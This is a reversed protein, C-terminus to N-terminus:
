ITVGVNVNNVNLVAEANKYYLKDLEDSSLGKISNILEILQKPTSSMIFMPWDSGFMIQDPITDFFYRFRQDLEEKRAKNQFTSIELFVNERQKAVEVNMKYFDAGGHGLIFRINPFQRSVEFITEPYKKETRMSDLSPGTHSLVPLGYQSCIEYLPYVSPDNLEFGCPPYLKLGSFGYRTVYKEFLDYGAQGRRPDVGSFVIFRGPYMNLVHKHIIHIDEISLDAEGLAYGFDAILLVSKAIGADDMQKVLADGQNDRLTSEVVKLLFKNKLQDSGAINQTIGNLFNPSFIKKFALHTHVDIIM